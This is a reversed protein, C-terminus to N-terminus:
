VDECRVHRPHAVTRGPGVRQVRAHMRRGVQLGSSAAAEEGVGVDLAEGAVEGLLDPFGAVPATRAVDVAAVMQHSGPPGPRVSTVLGSIETWNEVAQVM